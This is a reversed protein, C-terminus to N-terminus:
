PQSPRVVELDGFFLSGSPTQDFVLAIEAIDALNVGSVDALPLRLTTLPVRGIWLEGFSADKEAKGVPYQLAPDTLRTRLTATKGARDTLVVSFSQPARQTNLPSLPDIATRLSIATAASFDGTGPPLAFRWAAGPQTWSVVTLFPQGPTTVTARRCPESGPKSMPTYYGDQCFITTVGDAMIPGGARNLKLEGPTTPIFATRRDAANALVAVKGPLGYLQSPTPVQADMGMRAKADRVAPPDPNFLTTLFDTAYHVLFEQERAPELLTQCDPRNQRFLDPGLQRNFGNHTGGELWASNVWPLQDPATRAGEFFFAGDQTIVDGDCAPLIIGQPVTSAGPLTFLVAPAVHLLGAVPGYGRRALADPSDLGNQAVMSAFEGGRSHGIFALRGMDARGKLDVGFKNSGGASAEALSKLHLDVIQKLREAPMPEGFGFTNEANINPALAVYGQAALQQVLYDFGRYNPQEVDPACPWTDVSTNPDVPCGHHTGHLILVVPHPGPGPPAAVIGNLRVPMNRFRSDAPFREQLITADGLNYEVVSPLGATSGAGPTASSAASTPATTPRTPAVAAPPATAAASTPATTPRTPAVAAPPATTPQPGAATPASPAVVKGPLTATAAPPPPSTPTCGVAIAALAVMVLWTLRASTRAVIPRLHIM